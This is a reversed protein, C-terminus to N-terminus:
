KGLMQPVGILILSKKGLTRIIFFITVAVCIGRYGQKEM